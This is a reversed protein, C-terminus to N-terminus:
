EKPKPRVFHDLCVSKYSYSADKGWKKNEEESGGIIITKDEYNSHTGDPNFRQVFYADKGCQRGNEEYSCKGPLRRLDTVLGMLDATTVHSYIDFERQSRM